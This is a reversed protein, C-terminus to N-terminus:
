STRGPRELLVITVKDTLRKTTFTRYGARDYLRLNRKSIDGTFLEFRTITPSSGTM